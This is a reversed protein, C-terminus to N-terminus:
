KNMILKGNRTIRIRYIEGEHCIRIESQDGFLEPSTYLRPPSDPTKSGTSQGM